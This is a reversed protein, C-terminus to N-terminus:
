QSKEQSDLLAQYYALLRAKNTKTLKELVIASSYVPITNLPMDGNGLLWAPTVDLAEAMKEIAKSRPINEGKLYRSISSKQIGTKASLEAPTMNKITLAANLRDKLIYFETNM